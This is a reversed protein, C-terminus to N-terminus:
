AVGHRSATGVRGSVDGTARPQMMVKAGLPTRWQTRVNFCLGYPPKCRWVLAARPAAGVEIRAGAEGKGIMSGM